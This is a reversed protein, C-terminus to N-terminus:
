PPRRFKVEIETLRTRMRKGARLFFPVGQWRWSDIEFQFAAFTPTRSDGAVGHEERYGPVEKGQYWGRRYQGLVLDSEKLPRVQALVKVKEQRISDASMMSPVEMAVLT